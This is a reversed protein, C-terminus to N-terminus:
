TGRVTHWKAVPRRSFVLARPTNVVTAVSMFLWYVLPYFVVYGLSSRVTAEYRGDLFVGITLQVVAVTAVIMGWLGPFPSVADMRVGVVAAAAWLAVLGVCVYAWLISCVAEVLTPWMRRSRYSTVVHPGHERLVQALGRAWRSRQRWLGPMTTPVRMWVVARPEYRVDYFRRQLKWTLDIDETVMDHSFGGVDLVASVRVATVVGSVTLLRGWVRQARRMLSVIATFEVTQLRTLLTHREVVRPNGTVAAVRPSSTFHTVLARVAHPDPRADADIIVCIEGRAVVLADNLALAKGENVQKALLRIKGASVLPTLIRTTDDTSGDDVVLVEFDPYDTALCATVTELIHREENYAPVLVTVAPFDEGEYPVELSRGRERRLYYIFSTVIWVVGSLIPYGAFFAIAIRYLDWQEVASVVVSVADDM